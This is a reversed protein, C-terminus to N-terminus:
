GHLLTCLGSLGLVHIRQWTVTDGLIFSSLHQLCKGCVYHLRPSMMQSTKGNSLETLDQQDRTSEWPYSLSSPLRQGATAPHDCGETPKQGQQEGNRALPM